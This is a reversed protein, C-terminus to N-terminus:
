GHKGMTAGGGSWGRQRWLVRGTRRDIVQKNIVFYKAGTAEVQGCKGPIKATWRTKGTIASRVTVAAPPGHHKSGAPRSGAESEASCGVVGILVVTAVLVRPVVVRARCSRSDPASRAPANM